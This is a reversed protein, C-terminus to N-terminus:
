LVPSSPGVRGGAIRILALVVAVAEASRSRERHAKRIRQPGERPRQGQGNTLDKLLVLMKSKWHNTYDRVVAPVGAGGV